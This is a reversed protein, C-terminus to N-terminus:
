LDGFCAAFVLVTQLINASTYIMRFVPFPVNQSISKTNCKEHTWVLKNQDCFSLASLIKSNNNNM